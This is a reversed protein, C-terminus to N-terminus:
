GTRRRHRARPRRQGQAEQGERGPRTDLEQDRGRVRRHHAGHLAPRRRRVGRGSDSQAHEGQERRGDGRRPEQRGHEVACAQREELWARLHVHGKYINM